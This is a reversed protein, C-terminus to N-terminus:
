RIAAAPGRRWRALSEWVLPDEMGLVWTAVGGSRYREALELRAAASASEELWVEHDQVADPAPTPRPTPTPSPAPDAVPCPPPERVTIEHQPAPPKSVPPPREGAPASYRFTASRTEPDTGIPLAHREALAAAEPYGLYRAGGSTTNWDFGYFALGLLVKERPIQATAFALVREVGDYPAIPGPEGWAGHFEYAMVTILDAHEGLAAYDYAGAWGTTTDTAKAPVALALVKSRERLAAGLRAVFATYAARDDPRIGELDLDFGDYGEQEVYDVIQAIARASVEADTLLRHNLWGSLTLLSPFVSIGHSRAFRKLTQDDRSALQGCADVTVWQAAVIDISPGRAELSAWSAPDYPVYYALVRRGQADLSTGPAAWGVRAHPGTATLLVLLVITSASWRV